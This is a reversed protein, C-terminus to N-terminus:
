ALYALPNSNFPLPLFLFTHQPCLSLFLLSIASRNTNIFGATLKCFPASKLPFVQVFQFQRFPFNIRLAVFHATPFFLYGSRSLSLTVTLSLHVKGFFLPNLPLMSLFSDIGCYLFTPELSLLSHLCLSSPFLMLPHTFAFAKWSSRWLRPKMGLRALGLILFAIPLRLVRKYSSMAFHTPTVRLLPPSEKTLFLTIPCCSVCGTISHGAM